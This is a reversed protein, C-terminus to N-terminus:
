QHYDLSHFADKVQAIEVPISLVLRWEPQLAPIAM